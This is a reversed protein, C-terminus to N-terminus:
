KSLAPLLGFSIHAQSMVLDIGDLSSCIPALLQVEQLLVPSKWALSRKGRSAPSGGRRKREQPRVEQAKGAPTKTKGEM